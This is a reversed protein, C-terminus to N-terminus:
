CGNDPKPLPDPPKINPCYNNSCRKALEEHKKEIFTECEEQSPERGLFSSVGASLSRDAGESLFPIKLKLVFTKFLLTIGYFRKRDDNEFEPYRDYQTGIDKDEIVPKIEFWDGPRGIYANPSFFEARLEQYHNIASQVQAASSEGALALRRATSYSMYQTVSIHVLTMNLFLFSLIFFILIMSVLLFPITVMGRQNKIQSKKKRYTKSRMFVLVKKHKKFLSKAMTQTNFNTITPIDAEATQKM